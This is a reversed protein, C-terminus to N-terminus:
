NQIIGNNVIECTLVDPTAEIINLRMKGDDILLFDGVKIDDYLERCDIHFADKTGLIPEKHVKVIEGKKFSAFGNEFVGTRIEPGKTDALIGVYKGMRASVKRITEMRNQTRRPFWSFFNLRAVNMGAEIMREIM